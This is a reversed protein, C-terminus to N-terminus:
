LEKVEQKTLRLEKLCSVYGWKKDTHTAALAQCKARLKLDFQIREWSIQKDQKEKQWDIIRTSIIVATIALIIGILLYTGLDKM